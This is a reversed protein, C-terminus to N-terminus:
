GGRAPLVWRCLGCARPVPPGTAGRDRPAAGSLRGRARGRAPVARTGLRIRDGAGPRDPGPQGLGRPRALRRVRSDLVPDGLRLRRGRGAGGRAGASGVPSARTAAPREAPRYTDSTLDLALKTRRGDVVALRYFGGDGKRGTRGDAVMAELQERPWEIGLFPDARGLRDRFSREVVLVLDIGVLDLLGFVGTKPCGFAASVIADAEEVSLGRAVAEALAWGLWACGLRNAIFGPTDHCPVVSKGLERDAFDSVAAVADPRTKEGAVVELLRLYRPPNFFHTVLFDPALAAPAGALLERLPITSTNSSVVSGPKRHSDLLAYVAHKAAADEVIAEIIWDCERLLDLDDALNGPTVLDAAGRTMFPPPQQRLAREVAARALASREGGTEPVVDLLVVPVGANALHAAIGSGMVGAGIVAAREIVPDNSRKSCPRSARAAASASRRSPTGAARGACCSLRRARSGRAPRAWRTASRSRAATSISAAGPRSRARDPRRGGPERFGREARDRRRRRDRAAGAGAGQPYRGCTGHGHDRSRVRFGRLRPRRRAARARKAPRLAREDGPLRRRRRHAAVVHRGDGHRRELFAPKLGALVEATTGPRPCGDQEVLAGNQRIPAIEDALRGAGQADGAKRQSEVAFEEQRSRSVGFREAVNEATEGMSMYIQPYSEALGPHPLFNFGAMPVRSMSEVGAAVYAEGMGAAIAGAATHVAQMSSGCFRNVTAGAVSRPLGALTAIIRGMNMGQEGEPFACGVTVDELTAPDVGSREVLARVVQGGLEDPRVRALEGKHAPQFPSRVYGAIVVRDPGNM